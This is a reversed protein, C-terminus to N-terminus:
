KARTRKAADRQDLAEVIAKVRNVEGEHARSFRDEVRQMEIAHKATRRAGIEVVCACPNEDTIPKGDAAVECGHDRHMDAPLKARADYYHLWQRSNPCTGIPLFGKAVLDRTKNQANRDRFDRQASGCFVTARVWAGAPNLMHVTRMNPLKETAPEGHRDLRERKPLTWSSCDVAAADGTGQITIPM